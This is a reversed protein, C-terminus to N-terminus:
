PSLAEARATAHAAELDRGEETYLYALTLWPDANTENLSIARLLQQEAGVLDGELLSVVGLRHAMWPQNPMLQVFRKLTNHASRLDGSALHATISAKAASLSHPASELAQTSWLLAPQLATTDGKDLRATLSEAATISTDVDWPRLAHAREFSATARPIDGAFAALRGNSLATEATLCIGVFILWCLVAGTLLLRGTHMSVPFRRHTSASLSGLPTPVAISAAAARISLLAGALFGGLIVTGPSTLHTLLVITIALLAVGASTAFDKDNAVATSRAKTISARIVLTIGGIFLALVAPGGALLSQVIVNHPSDLTISQGVTNFWAADHYAAIADSFGSPGAGFLPHTLALRFSESWILIRDGITSSGFESTGLLRPGLTPSLLALLALAGLAGVVIGVARKRTTRLAIERVGILTLGIMMALLSARSAAIFVTALAFGLGVLILIARPTWLTRRSRLVPIILLLACATGIAGQDTANGLLSGPRSLNSAIPRLGWSELVSVAGIVLALTAIALTFSRRENGTSAPGLLRAGLWLALLYATGTVLGEYRPWRGLFAGLPLASTLAAITLVTVACLLVVIVSRPLRGRPTVWVGVLAALGLVSDKPLVWRNLAEPWYVATAGIAGWLAFHWRWAALWRALKKM